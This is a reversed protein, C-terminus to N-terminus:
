QTDGGAVGSSQGTALRRAARVAALKELAFREEQPLTAPHGNWYKVYAQVTRDDPEPLDVVTRGALGGALSAGAVKRFYAQDGPELSGLHGRGCSSAAAQAGREVMEDTIDTM